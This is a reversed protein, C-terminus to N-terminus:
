WLTYNFLLFDNKYIQYLKRKESRSIKNYYEEQLKSTTNSPLYHPITDFCGDKGFKTLIYRIDKELTDMEAIHNYKIHQPFCQEYIPKWHDNLKKKMKDQYIVYKVFEPFTVDHGEKLSEASAGPRFLKVILAGHHHHFYRLTFKNRIEFKNRYASLVRDFPNRVILFKFYNKLKYDIEKQSFIHLPKLGIKDMDTDNHINYKPKRPIKNTMKALLDKM